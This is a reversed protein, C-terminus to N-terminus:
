LRADIPFLRERAAAHAGNDRRENRHVDPASNQRVVRHDVAVVLDREPSRYALGHVPMVALKQQLQAM